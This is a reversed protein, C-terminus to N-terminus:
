FKWYPNIRAIREREEAASAILSESVPLGARDLLQVYENYLCDEKLYDPYKGIELLLYTPIPIDCKLSGYIANKVAMGWEGVEHEEQISKRSEPCNPHNMIIPVLKESIEEFKM